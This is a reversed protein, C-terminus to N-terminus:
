QPFPDITYGSDTRPEGPGYSVRARDPRQLECNDVETFGFKERLFLLLTLGDDEPIEVMLHM